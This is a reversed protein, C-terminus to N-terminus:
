DNFIFFGYGGPDRIIINDVKGEQNFHTIEEAIPIDLARIKDIIIPNNEKGNFYTLSPNFFLHPCMLPKMLSVGFGSADTYTVWGQEVSGMSKEYGLIQWISASADMDITELSLGMFNGPVGFCPDEMAISVPALEWEQEMLYIWVGSPASLLYGQDIPIVKTHKELDAVEAKWSRKFCKLGARAYRDPNIEIIAKGDTVVVPDAESLTEFKLKKYFSLSTALQNTPTHIITTM